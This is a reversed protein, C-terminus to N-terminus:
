VIEMEEMDKRVQALAQNYLKNIIDMDLNAYMSGALIYVGQDGYAVEYAQRLETPTPNYQYSMTKRENPKLTDAVVSVPLATSTLVVSM